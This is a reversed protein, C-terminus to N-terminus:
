KAKSVSNNNGINSVAPKDGAVGKKWSIKNDNGTVSVKDAGDVSITNGNGNVNVATAKEIAITTNSGNVGIKTCAGTFTFTGGAGNIMATPGDKDKACNHTVKMNADNYSKDAYAIAPVLLLVLTVIRHM